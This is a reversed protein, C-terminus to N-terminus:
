KKEQTTKQKFIDPTFVYNGDIVEFNKQVAPASVPIVIEPELPPEEEVKPEEDSVKPSIEADPVEEPKPQEPDATAPDEDPTVAQEPEVPAEAQEEAHPAELETQQELRRIRGNSEERIDFGCVELPCTPNEGELVAIHTTEIGRQIHDEDVSDLFIGASIPIKEGNDIKQKLAAPTKEEHFNVKANVRKDKKSWKRYVSGIILDPDIGWTGSDEDYVPQVHGYTLPVFPRKEADKRLEEETKVEITDGYKYEGPAAVVGRMKIAM